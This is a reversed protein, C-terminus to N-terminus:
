APGPMGAGDAGARDRGTGGQGRGACEPDAYEQWRALVGPLEATVFDFFRANETLRLGAPTGAGLLAVGERMTEGWQAMVANRATILREWVNDPVSYSLRRTGPEGASIVLGIHLLYRVAGSVAAPSVGLVAGIDAATLQGADAALLATFVRAPMRPVGSQHLIGAFREIFRGIAQQDRAQQGAQLASSDPAV